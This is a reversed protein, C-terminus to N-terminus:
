ATMAGKLNADIKDLFGETTLWSQEPGVLLALDKTMYGSEVTDVCVRELTHAFKDLAASGDLKARHALGRTWAFISAISNTSTARGKQHERYHRTVTGHAAEAEVTRGDPTMLVSTMLGLSGFGQAVTDSQVDGDYNKCAWVYGGSWKLASAVM